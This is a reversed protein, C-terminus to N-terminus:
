PESPHAGPAVHVIRWRGDAGRRSEITVPAADTYMELWGEGKGIEGGERQANPRVALLARYTVEDAALARARTREGRRVLAYFREVVHVWPNAEATERVIRGGRARYTSRFSM